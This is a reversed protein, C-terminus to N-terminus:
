RNEIISTKAYAKDAKKIIKIAKERSTCEQAKTQLKFLKKQVKNL